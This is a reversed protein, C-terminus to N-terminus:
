WLGKANLCVVTAQCCNTNQYWSSTVKGVEVLGATEPALTGRLLAIRLKPRIYTMVSEYPERCKEAIKEALGQNVRTCEPGGSTTVLPNFSSKEIDIV